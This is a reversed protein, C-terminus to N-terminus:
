SEDSLVYLAQAASVMVTDGGNVLYGTRGDRTVPHGKVLHFESRPGTAVYMGPRVAEAAITEM